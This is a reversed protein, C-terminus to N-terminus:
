LRHQSWWAREQWWPAARCRDARHYGLRRGSSSAGGACTRRRRCQRVQECHAMRGIPALVGGQRRWVVQRSIDGRTGGGGGGGGFGGVGGARNYGDGYTSISMDGGGAGGGGYGAAGGASSYAHGNLLRGRRAAAASAVAIRFLDGFRPRPQDAQARLNSVGLAGGPAVPALRYNAMASGRLTSTVGDVGM